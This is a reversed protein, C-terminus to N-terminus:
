GEVGDANGPGGRRSAPCRKEQRVESRDIPVTKPADIGIRVKDGCIDAVTVTIGDGIVIQEGQRRTLVLM